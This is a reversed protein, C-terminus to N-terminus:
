DFERQWQISAGQGEDPTLDAEVAVNDRPQWEIVLAPQGTGDTRVELYVDESLYKGTTVNASGDESAGVDLTDLGLADEIQGMVNMGGGGGSLSALSAALQAAELASLDSPSRGFLVRSLVEDEPVNEESTLTIEPDTPSGTIEIIATIDETRRVASLDLQAEMADGALIIQSDEFVFRKGAFDFRGRIIEAEGVIQPDGIPGDIKANIGFETDLGPGAIFLRRPASLDIDLALRVHDEEADAPPPDDDAFRVDLTTYGAGQIQSTDIDAQDIKLDGTVAFGDTTEALSIDGSARARIDDRDIVFVNDATLSLSSANGGLAFSGAGSLNGGRPGVGSFRDLTFLGDKIATQLTIDNLVFGLDGQEVRGGTLAIIGRTAGREPPVMGNLNIDAVGSVALTPPSLLTALAEIEGGGTIQFTATPTEPLGLGPWNASSQLPAEIVAEIDLGTTDKATVILLGGSPSATLSHSLAATEGALSPATLDELGGSWTIRPDTEASPGTASLEGSLAGALIPRDLLDLIPAIALGAYDVALTLPGDASSLDYSITGGLAEMTGSGAPAADPASRSLQLPESATIRVTGLTLDPTVQLSQSDGTLGSLRGVLGADLPQRTGALMVDSQLDINLDVDALTGAATASVKTPGLDGMGASTLRADLALTEGALTLNSEITAIASIFAPAGSLQFDATLTDIGGTGSSARGSLALGLGNASLNSVSWGSEGIDFSAAADLSTEGTAGALRTRGTLGAPGMEGDVRVSANDIVTDQLNLSASEATMSLALTDAPGRASASLTIADTATGAFELPVTAAALAIDLDGNAARRGNGSAELGAATLTIAPLTIAGDAEATVTAAFTAQAGVIADLPPPMPDLDRIEGSVDIEPRGRDNTSTRWRSDIIFPAAGSARGDARLTGAFRLDNSGPTYRGTASLAAHAGSIQLGDLRLTGGEGDLAASLRLLPQQGLLDGLPATLVADRTELASSLSLERGAQRIDLPGTVRDITGAPIQLRDAALSGSFSWDGTADDLQGSLRLARADVTSIGSLGALDDTEILISIPASLDHPDVGAIATIRDSRANISVSDRDGDRKSQITVTATDGIRDAAARSMPHRTLDMNITGDAMRDRGALDVSLATKGGINAQGRITWDDPDGAADFQASLAQGPDLRAITAILGGPPAEITLTGELPTDAQWTLDALLRDGGSANPTLSAEIDLAQRSATGSASVSFVSAQGTLDAGTELRAITLTGLRGSSVFSSGGGGNGADESPVLVPQRDIRIRALSVTDIDIKGALLAWPSWNIAVDEATLWIGDGDSVTLRSLNFRGLLDGNLGEIAISQGSISLAELRAEVLGRGTSTSVGFRLVGLLLVAGALVGLGYQAWRRRKPQPTTPATESM